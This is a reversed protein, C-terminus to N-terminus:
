FVVDDTFIFLVSFDYTKVDYPTKIRPFQVLFHRFNEVMLTDSKIKIMDVIHNKERRWFRDSIELVRFRDSKKLLWFRDSKELM